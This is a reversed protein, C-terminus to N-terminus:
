EIITDKAYPFKSITYQVIDPNCSGSVLRRYEATVTDYKKLRMFEKGPYITTDKLDYNKFRIKITDRNAKPYVCNVVANQMDDKKINVVVIKSYSTEYTCGGGAAIEKAKAKSKCYQLFMCSLIVLVKLFGSIIKQFEFQIQM